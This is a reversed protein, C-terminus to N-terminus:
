TPLPKNCAPRLTALAGGQRQAAAAHQPSQQPLGCVISVISGKRAYLAQQDTIKGLLGKRYQYNRSAWVRSVKGVLVQSRQVSARGQGAVWLVTSPALFLLSALSAPANRLSGGTPEPADLTPAVVGSFTMTNLWHVPM